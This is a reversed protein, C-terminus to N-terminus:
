AKALAAKGLKEAVMEHGHAFFEDKSIKGAGL